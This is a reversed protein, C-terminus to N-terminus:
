IKLKYADLFRYLRICSYAIRPCCRLMSVLVRNKFSDVFCICSEERYTKVERIFDDYSQEKQLGDLYLISYDRLFTDRLESFSSGIRQSLLNFDESICDTLRKFDKAKLKYKASTADIYYYVTKSIFQITSICLLYRLVFDTDEGYFLCQSYRLGNSNIIDRKFLKCWPTSFFTGAMDSIYRTDDKINVKKNDPSHDTVKGTSLIIHSYGGVVLDVDPANMLASLTGPLLVDDSDLFVIYDGIAADLGKNRTASVGENAKIIAKVRIDRKAAELCKAGSGDNSGDDVLILEYDSYDQSSVSAICRDLTAFANYVPVIISIKPAVM